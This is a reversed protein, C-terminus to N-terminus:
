GLDATIIFESVIITDVNPDDPDLTPSTLELEYIYRGEPLNVTDSAKIRIYAKGEDFTTITKTILATASKLPTRKVVFSVSDGMALPMPTSVGDELRTFQVYFEGSDGSSMSITRGDIKLM